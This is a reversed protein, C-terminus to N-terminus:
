PTHMRQPLTGSYDPGFVAWSIAPDATVPTFDSVPIILLSRKHADCFGEIQQQSTMQEDSQGGQAVSHTSHKKCPITREEDPQQNTKSNESSQNVIDLYSVQPQETRADSCQSFEPPTETFSLVVRQKIPNIVKAGRIDGNLQAINEQSSPMDICLSEANNSHASFATQAKELPLSQPTPANVEKTELRRDSSSPLSVARRAATATIRDEEEASIVRILNTRCRVTFKTRHQPAGFNDDELAVNCWCKGM